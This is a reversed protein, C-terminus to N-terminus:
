FARAARVRYGRNKPGYGYGCIGTCFAQIVADHATGESSSWYLDSWYEFSEFGGVGKLHLNEYMLTLEDKSPLFWDSYGGKTLANCLQAAKGTESHNNLWTVIKTTNSQGTGIGTGTGGILTGYSGWEKGTWETSAPAAELYRWGDSYSGKDYFIWGGAPGIDRLDYTGSSEIIFTASITHDQTVNTFTYLSVAGVSSGDVLVDDIQYGTDPTITFSKDSDQNVTISGSPSISGHSGASATITYTDNEQPGADYLKWDNGIKQLYYWGGGSFEEIVEGDVIYTATINSYVEAYEGNIIIENVDSSYNIDLTGGVDLNDWYFQEEAENLSEYVETGYVCCSRAEDWDQDSLAQFLKHIVNEVKDEETSGDVVINLTETDEGGEGDSVTCTVAYTGETSPASFTSDL